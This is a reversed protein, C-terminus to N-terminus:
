GAAGAVGAAPGGAAFARALMAQALQGKPAFDVAARGGAEARRAQDLIGEEPLSLERDLFAHGHASASALFVGIQGNERRGATGSYQRKVGVSKTGQKRFGTEDVVVVGDPAGLHEVVYRRLADRVADADWHAANLLRRVGQPGPEGLHEAVQPFDDATTQGGVVVHGLGDLVLAQATRA